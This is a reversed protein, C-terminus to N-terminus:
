YKESLNGSAYHKITCSLVRCWSLTLTSNLYCKIQQMKMSIWRIMSGKHEMPADDPWSLLGRADPYLKKKLYSIFQKFAETNKNEDQKGGLLVSFANLCLKPKKTLLIYQNHLQIHLM